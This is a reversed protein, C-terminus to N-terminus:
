FAVLDKGSYDYWKINGGVIANPITLIKFKQGLILYVTIDYWPKYKVESLNVSTSLM